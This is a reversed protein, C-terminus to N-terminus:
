ARIFSKLRSISEQLLAETAHGTECILSDVLAIFHMTAMRDIEQDTSMAM